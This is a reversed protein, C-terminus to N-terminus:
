QGWVGCLLHNPHRKHCLSRGGRRGGGQRMGRQPWPLFVACRDPLGRRRRNTRLVVPPRTGPCVRPSHPARSRRLARELGRHRVQWWGPPATPVSSTSSPRCSIFHRSPCVLPCATAACHPFLSLGCPLSTRPFALGLICAPWVASAYVGVPVCMSSSLLGSLEGPLRPHGDHLTHPLACRLPPFASSADRVRFGPPAEQGVM